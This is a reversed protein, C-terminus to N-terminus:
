SNSRLKKDNKTLHNSLIEVCNSLTVIKFITNSLEESAVHCVHNKLIEIEIVEASFESSSVVYGNSRNKRVIVGKLPLQLGKGILKVYAEKITWLEYFNVASNIKLQDELNVVRSLLRADYDMQIRELDIGLKFPAIALVIEDKTHSINFHIHKIDKAEFYPKGFENVNIDDKEIRRGIHHSM